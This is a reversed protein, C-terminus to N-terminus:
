NAPLSDGGTCGNTDPNLVAGHTCRGSCCAVDPLLDGSELSACQEQVECSSVSRRYCTAVRAAVKSWDPLLALKAPAAVLTTLGPTACVNSLSNGCQDDHQCAVGCRQAHGLAAGCSLGAACDAASECLGGRPVVSTIKAMCSRSGIDFNDAYRCVKGDLCDGDTRCASCHGLVCFGGGCDRDDDCDGCVGDAGPYKTLSPQEGFICSGSACQGNISCGEGPACRGQKACGRCVGAACAGDKCEDSSVCPEGEGCGGEPCRACHGLVCRRSACTLDTSCLSGDALTTPSVDSCAALNARLVLEVIRVRGPGQKLLNLRVARFEPPTRLGLDLHRWQVAPVMTSTDISGDDNFDLQLVLQADADVDALVGMSFCQVNPVYDLRKSILAPTGNLQVARQHEHWSGSPTVEGAKVEWGCLVEACTSDITEIDQFPSDAACSAILVSCALLTKRM